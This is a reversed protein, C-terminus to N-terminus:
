LGSKALKKLKKAEKKEKQTKAPAKKAEKKVSKEKGMAKLKSLTFICFFEISSSLKKYQLIFYRYNNGERLFLASNTQIISKSKCVL